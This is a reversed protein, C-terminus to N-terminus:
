LLFMLAASLPQHPLVGPSPASYMVDTNLSEALSTAASLLSNRYVTHRLRSILQDRDTHCWQEREVATKEAVISAQCQRMEQQATSHKIMQFVHLLYRHELFLDENFINKFYWKPFSM